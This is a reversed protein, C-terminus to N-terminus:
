RSRSRVLTPAAPSVLKPPQAIAPASAPTTVMEFLVPSLPDADSAIPSPEIAVIGPVNMHVPEQDGDRLDIEAPRPRPLPPVPPPPVAPPPRAPSLSRRMPSVSRAAPSIPRPVPSVSRSGAPSKLISVPSVASAPSPGPPPPLARKPSPALGQAPVLAPAPISAQVAAIVQARLEMHTYKPKRRLPVPAPTSTAAEFVQECLEM